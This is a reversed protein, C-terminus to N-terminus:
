RAARHLGGAPGLDVQHEVSFAMQVPDHVPILRLHFIYISIYIYM